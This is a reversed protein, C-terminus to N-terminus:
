ALPTMEHSEEHDGSEPEGIIRTVADRSNAAGPLDRLVSENALSQKRLPRDHRPILSPRKYEQFHVASAKSRNSRDNGEAFYDDVNSSIAKKSNSACLMYNNSYVYRIAQVADAQKM